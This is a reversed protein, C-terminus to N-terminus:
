TTNLPAQKNLNNILKRIVQEIHTNYRLRHQMKITYVFIITQNHILYLESM